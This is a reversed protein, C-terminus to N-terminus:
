RPTSRAMPAPPDAAASDGNSLGAFAVTGGALVDVTPAAALHRVTIRGEGSEIASTDNNFVSVTPDGSETLHAVISTDAGATLNVNAALVPDSDDAADAATVAVRHTGSALALPGAVTGPVFDDLALSGDVYVDVTLGPIGHVVTTSTTGGVAGAPSATLLGAAVLVATLLAIFRRM